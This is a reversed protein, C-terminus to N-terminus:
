SASIPPASALALQHHHQRRQASFGQVNYVHPDVIPGCSNNSGMESHEDDGSNDDEVGLYFSRLKMSLKDLGEPSLDLRFSKEDQPKFKSDTTTTTTTTTVISALQPPLVTRPSPSPSPSSSSSFYSRRSSTLHSIRYWISPSHDSSTYDSSAGASSISSSVSSINSQSRKGLKHHPEQSVPSISEPSRGGRRMRVVHCSLHKGYFKRDKM